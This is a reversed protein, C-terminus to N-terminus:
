PSPMCRCRLKVPLTGSLEVSAPFIRADIL